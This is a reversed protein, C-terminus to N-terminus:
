TAVLRGSRGCVGPMCKHSTAEYFYEIINPTLTFVERYKPYKPDSTKLINPTLTFVELINPLNKSQGWIDWVIRSM